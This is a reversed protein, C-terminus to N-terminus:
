CIGYYPEGGCIPEACYILYDSALSEVDSLIKEFDNMSAFYLTKFSEPASPTTSYGSCKERIANVNAIWRNADTATLYGEKGWNTKVSVTAGTLEAVEKIGSEIRNYDLYSLAGKMGAYWEEQESDTWTGNKAKQTLTKVREVDASTRDTIWNAM